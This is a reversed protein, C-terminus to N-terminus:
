IRRLIELKGKTLEGVDPYVLFKEMLVIIARGRERDLYAPSNLPDNRSPRGALNHLSQIYSIRSMRTLLTLDLEKEFWAIAEDIRMLEEERPIEPQLQYCLYSLILESKSSNVAQFRSAARFLAEREEFNPPTKLLLSLAVGYGDCADALLDKRSAVLLTRFETDAITGPEWGQHLISEFDDLAYRYQRTRDDVVAQGVGEAECLAVEM